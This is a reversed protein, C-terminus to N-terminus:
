KKDPIKKPFNFLYTMVVDDSLSPTYIQYLLSKNNSFEANFFYCLSTIRVSKYTSEVLLLHIKFLTVIYKM